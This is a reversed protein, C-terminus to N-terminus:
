QQKMASSNGVQMYMECLLGLDEGGGVTAQLVVPSPVGPSSALYSILHQHKRFLIVQTHRENYVGQIMVTFQYLPVGRYRVGKPVLM